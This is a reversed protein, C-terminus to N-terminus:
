ESLCLLVFVVSLVVLRAWSFVFLLSWSELSPLEFWHWTLSFVEVVLTPILYVRWVLAAGLVFLSHCGGGAVNM